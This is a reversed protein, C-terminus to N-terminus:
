FDSPLVLYVAEAQRPTRTVIAEEEPTQLARRRRHLTVRARSRPSRSTCQQTPPRVFFVRPAPKYADM